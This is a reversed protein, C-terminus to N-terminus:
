CLKDALEDPITMAVSGDRYYTLRAGVEEWQCHQIQDDPCSFKFIKQSHAGYYDSGFSYVINKGPSAVMMHGYVEDAVPM